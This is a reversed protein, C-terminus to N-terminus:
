GTGAMALERAIPQVDEVTAQLTAILAKLIRQSRERNRELRAVSPSYEKATHIVNTGTRVDSDLM